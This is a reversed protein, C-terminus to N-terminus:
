ATEFNSTLALQVLLEPVAEAAGFYLSIEIAVSPNALRARDVVEPIDSAVHAGKALFYPLVVISSVGGAVLCAIADEIGPKAMELFAYEIVDFSQRYSEGAAPEASSDSLTHRTKILSGIKGALQAIEQNSEARRSGHAVLLLARM